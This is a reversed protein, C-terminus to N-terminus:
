RWISHLLPCDLERGVCAMKTIRGRTTRTDSERHRPTLGAWCCLAEASRFRSADGIEAVLIAAITRGVGNIAQVAHYGRHEALRAHIERELMVVERDYIEILDRL